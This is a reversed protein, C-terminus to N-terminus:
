VDNRVFSAAYIGPGAPPLSATYLGPGSLALPVVQAAGNPEVLRVRPSATDDFAGGTTRLSTSVQLQGDQVRLTPVRPGLDQGALARLLPSAAGVGLKIHGRVESTGATGYRAENVVIRPIDHPDSVYHFLGGGLKAWHRLEDQVVDEGVGITSLTIHERHMRRILHDFDAYEGQGDTLLVVHRYITPVRLVAREAERLAP